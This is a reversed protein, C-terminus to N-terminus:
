LLHQKPDCFHIFVLRHMDAVVTKVSSLGKTVVNRAVAYFAELADFLAFTIIKSSSVRKAHFRNCIPVFKSSTMALVPSLSEQPILM